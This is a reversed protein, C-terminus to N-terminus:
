DKPKSTFIALSLLMLPLVHFTVAQQVLGAPQVEQAQGDPLEMVDEIPPDEVGGSAGEESPQEDEASQQDAQLEDCMNIIREIQGARVNRPPREYPRRPLAVPQPQERSGQAARPAANPAANLAANRAPISALNPVAMPAANSAAMPVANQVAIPAEIMAGILAEIPAQNPAIAPEQIPAMIPAAIPEVISAEKPAAMPAAIPAAMPAAIPAAIPAANPDVIWVANLGAIPMRQPRNVPAANLAMLRHMSSPKAFHAAIVRQVHESAYRPKEVVPWMFQLAQLPDEVPPEPNRSVRVFEYRNPRQKNLEDMMIANGVDTIYPNHHLHVTSINFTRRIVYGLYHDDLFHCGTLTLVKLNRVMRKPLSSSPVDDKKGFDIDYHTRGFVQLEALRPTIAAFQLLRKMDVFDVNFVYLRSMSPFMPLIQEAMVQGDTCYVRLYRLNSVICAYTSVTIFARRLPWLHAASLLGDRLRRSQRFEQIPVQLTREYEFLSTITDKGRWDHTDLNLREADEILLVHILYDFLAYFADMFSAVQKPQFPQAMQDVLFQVNIGGTAPKGLMRQQRKRFYFELQWRASLNVTKSHQYLIQALQSIPLQAAHTALWREARSWVISAHQLHGITLRRLRMNKVLLVAITANADLENIIPLLADDPLDLLEMGFPAAASQSHPQVSM